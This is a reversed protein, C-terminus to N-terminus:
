KEVKGRYAAIGGINTVDTYGMHKMASVARSSRGGSLCYVFIKADEDSVVDSIRGINEGPVNISGPIHGTNYEAESRVDILFANESENFAKVGENIDPTKFIDFFGM